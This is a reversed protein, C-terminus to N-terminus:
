LCLYYNDLCSCYQSSSPVYVGRHHNVRATTTAAGAAVANDTTQNSMPDAYRVQAM